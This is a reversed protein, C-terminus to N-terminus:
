APQEDKIYTHAVHKLILASQTTCVYTNTHMMPTKFDVNVKDEVDKKSQDECHFNV